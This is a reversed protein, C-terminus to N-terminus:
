IIDLIWRNRHFWGDQNAKECKLVLKNWLQDHKKCDDVMFAIYFEGQVDLFLQKIRHLSQSVSDDRGKFDFGYKNLGEGSRIKWAFRHYECLLVVIVCGIYLPNTVFKKFREVSKIFENNEIKTETEHKEEEGDYKKEEGDADVKKETKDLHTYRSLSVCYVMIKNDRLDMMNLLKPYHIDHIHTLDVYKCKSDEITSEKIEHHYDLFKNGHNSVCCFRRSGKLGYFDMINEIVENPVFMNYLPELRHVCGYVLMMRKYEFKQRAEDANQDVTLRKFTQCGQDGTLVIKLRETSSSGFYRPKEKDLEKMIQMDVIGEALTTLTIEKSYFKNEWQFQDGDENCIFNMMDGLRECKCCIGLKDDVWETLVLPLFCLHTCLGFIWTIIMMVQLQPYITSNTDVIVPIQLFITILILVIANCCCMFAAYIELDSDSDSANYLSPTIGLYLQDTIYTSLGSTCLKLGIFAYFGGWSMTFYVLILTLLQTFIDFIYYVIYISEAYKEIPMFASYFVNITSTIIAFQIIFSNDGSLFSIISYVFQFPTIM